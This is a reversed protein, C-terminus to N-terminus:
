SGHGVTHLRLFFLSKRRLVLRHHCRISTAVWTMGPARVDDRPLKGVEELATDGFGKTRDTELVDQESEDRGRLEGEVNSSACM